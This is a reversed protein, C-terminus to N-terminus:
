DDDHSTAVVWREGDFCEITGVGGALFQLPHEGNGSPESDHGLILSGFGNVFDLGGTVFVLECQIELAIALGDATLLLCCVAILGGALDDIINEALEEVDLTEATALDSEDQRIGLVAAFDAGDIWITRFFTEFDERFVAGDGRFGGPAVGVGHDIRERFIVCQVDHEHIEALTDLPDDGGGATEVAGSGERMVALEDAEGETEAVLNIEVAVIERGILRFAEGVVAVDFGGGAPRRVALLDAINGVHGSFGGEENDIGGAASRFAKLDTAAFANRGVPRM